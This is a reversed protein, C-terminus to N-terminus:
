QLPPGAITTRQQASDTCAPCHFRPAIMSLWLAVPAAAASNCSPQRAPIIHARSATRVTLQAFPVWACVIRTSAVGLWIAFENLGGYANPDVTSRTGLLAVSGNKLGSAM